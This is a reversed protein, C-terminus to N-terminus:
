SRPLRWGSRGEDNGGGQEDEAGDAAGSDSRM